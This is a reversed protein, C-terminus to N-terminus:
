AMLLGEVAGLAQKRWEERDAPDATLVRLPIQNREAVQGAIHAGGALVQAPVSGAAEYVIGRITTDIAKIVFSRLRLDHLARVQDEEGTACGLLWCAITVGDLAGILTGLRDPTGIWCQAGVQEIAQRNGEKRTLVRAAHGQRVVSSALWRGREGGGVILVRAMLACGITWVAPATVRLWPV